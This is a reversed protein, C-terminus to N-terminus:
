KLVHFFNTNWRYVCGLNHRPTQSVTIAKKGKGREAGQEPIVNSSVAIITPLPEPDRSEGPRWEPDEMLFLQIKDALGAQELRLQIQSFVKASDIEDNELNTGSQVTRNTDLISKTSFISTQRNKVFSGRYVAAWKTYDWNEVRFHSDGLVESRIKKLDDPDLAKRCVILFPLISSPVWMPVQIIDEMLSTINVKPGVIEKGNVRITVNEQMMDGLTDSVYGNMGILQDSNSNVKIALQRQFEEEDARILERLRAELQPALGRKVDQKADLLTQANIIQDINFKLMQIESELFERSNSRDGINFNNNSSDQEDIPALKQIRKEADSLRKYLREVLLIMTSSSLQKKELSIVLRRGLESQTTVDVEGEEVPTMLDKTLEEFIEDLMKSKKSEEQTRSLRLINEEKTAEDMLEKAKQRLREAEELATKGNISSAKSEDIQSKLASIHRTARHSNLNSIRMPTFASVGGHDLSFSLICILFIENLIWPISKKTM